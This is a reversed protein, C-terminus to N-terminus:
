DARLAPDRRIRARAFRIAPYTGGSQLMAHFSAVSWHFSGLWGWDAERLGILVHLRSVQSAPM